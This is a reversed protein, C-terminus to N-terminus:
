GRTITIASLKGVANSATLSIRKLYDDYLTIKCGSNIEVTGTFKDNYKLNTGNFITSATFVGEGTSFSLKAICDDSTGVNVPASPNCIADSNVCGGKGDDLKCDIARNFISGVEKCSLDIDEEGTVEFTKKFSDKSAPFWFLSMYVQVVYEGKELGFEFPFLPFIYDTKHVKNDKWITVMAQGFDDKVGNFNKVSLSSTRSLDKEEEEEKETTIPTTEEEDEEPDNLVVEEKETTIPTTPIIENKPPIPKKPTVENAIPDKEEVKTENSEAKTENTSTENIIPEGLRHAIPFNNSEICAGNECGEFCINVKVKVRDNKCFYERIRKDNAFCKDEYVKLKGNKKEFIVNGSVYIEQGGDSDVCSSGSVVNGTIKGFIDSVWGASVISLMLLLVFVILVGKKM